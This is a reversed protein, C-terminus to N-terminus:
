REQFCARQQLFASHMCVLCSTCLYQQGLAQKRSCCAAELLKRVTHMGQVALPRKFCCSVVEMKVACVLRVQMDQWLRDAWAEDDDEDAGGAAAAAAAATSPQGYEAAAVGPAAAAGWGAGSLSGAAAAATVATAAAYTITCSNGDNHPKASFGSQLSRYM